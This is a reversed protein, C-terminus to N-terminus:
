KGSQREITTLIFSCHRCRRYRKVGNPIPDTDRVEWFHRCFCKPCKIGKSAEPEKQPKDAM